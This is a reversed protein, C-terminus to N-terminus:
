WVTTTMLCRMYVRFMSLFIELTDGNIFQLCICLDGGCCDVEVCTLSSRTVDYFHKEPRWPVYFRVLNNASCFVCIYVFPHHHAGFFLTGRRYLWAQAHFSHTIWRYETLLGRISVRILVMNIWLTSFLTLITLSKFGLARINHM